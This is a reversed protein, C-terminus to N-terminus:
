PTVDNWEGKVRQMMKWSFWPYRARAWRFKNMADERVFGGKTEVFEMLQLGDGASKIVLWDPTYRVGKKNEGAADLLLTVPEYFWAVIYGNVRRQELIEAYAAECKSRYGGRIAPKSKAPAGGHLKDWAARCQPSM